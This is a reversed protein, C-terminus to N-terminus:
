NFDWKGVIDFDMKGTIDHLTSRLDHARILKCQGGDVVNFDYIYLFGDECAVLLITDKELTAIVCEHKLGSQNLQVTAFARDQCFVDSVQTPFYSSVAKTILGLMWRSEAPPQQEQAPSQQTVLSVPLPMEDSKNYKKNMKKENQKLDNDNTITTTQIKPPSHSQHKITNNKSTPVGIATSKINNSSKKGNKSRHDDDVGIGGGGGGNGDHRVKQVEVFKPDIKFIHVTETNSSVCLYKTCFSFKLSAITVNRKVGRRFEHIKQGSSACFVRIVTGKESATAILTGNPTYDIASLKSEHAKITIRSILNSADFIQLEGVDNAIPYALISNLSLACLGSDNSPVGMISHLLKM